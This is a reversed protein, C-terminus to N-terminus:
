QRQKAILEVKNLPKGCELEKDRLTYEWNKAEALQACTLGMVGSLNSIAKDSMSTEPNYDFEFGKFSVGHFQVDKFVCASCTAGNLKINALVSGIFNVSELRAGEFDDDSLSSSVINVRLLKAGKFLNDEFIMDTFFEGEFNVENFNSSSIFGYEFVNKNFLASEFNSSSINIDEFENGEWYSNSVEGSSIFSHKLINNVYASEKFNFGNFTVYEFINATIDESFDLYELVVLSEKHGKLEIKKFAFGSILMSNLAEVRLAQSADEMNLVEQASVLNSWRRAKREENQIVWDVCFVTITIILAFGGLSQFIRTLHWDNLWDAFSHLKGREVKENRAPSIKSRNEGNLFKELNNRRNTRSM